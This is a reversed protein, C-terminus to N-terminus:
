LFARAAEAVSIRVVGDVCRQGARGHGAAPKEPVPGRLRGAARNQGNQRAFLRLCISQQRTHIGMRRRAFRRNGREALARGVSALLDRRGAAPRVYRRIARGFLGSPCLEVHLSRDASRAVDGKQQAELLSRYDAASLHDRFYANYVLNRVQEGAAKPGLVTGSPGSGNMNSVIFEQEITGIENATVGIRNRIEYLEKELGLNRGRVEGARRAVLAFLVARPIASLACWPIKWATSSSNGEWCSWTNKITRWDPWGRRSM